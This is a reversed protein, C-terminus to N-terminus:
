GTAISGYFSADFAYLIGLVALAWAATRWRWSADALRAGALIVAPILTTEVWVWSVPDLRFPPDGQEILTFFGFIGLAMFLLFPRIEDREARRFVTLLVSGLLVVGLAPNVSEYEPTNDTLARGTVLAHLSIVADKGYFMTPYPSFGLGGVRRLHAGYTAQGVEQGTYAVRVTEPNARLNWVVDPAIVAAFVACALYAHPGRLWHRHRPLLLTAFFVPVLLASHEKCYFALGTCSGALYLWGARQSALFRSFAYVAGTVLFLHPVHATARASVSLFYDNFAMLAAAWRAAVPGYWQQTLRYILVVTALGLLVHLARFALPSTGFLMNSVRVVYAPLAGHNEGRIPLNVSGPALSITKSLPIHTNEEDHVYPATVAISLRIALAVLVIALLGADVRTV